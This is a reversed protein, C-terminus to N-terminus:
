EAAFAAAAMVELNMYEQKGVSVAVRLITGGKFTGPTEYDQSV